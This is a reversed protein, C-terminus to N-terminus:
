SANSLPENPPPSVSAMLDSLRVPALVELGYLEGKADYDAMLIGPIVEQTHDVVGDRLRIYMAELTGDDRASIALEFGIDRSRTSRKEM